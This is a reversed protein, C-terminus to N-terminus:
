PLEDADHDANQIAQGERSKLKRTKNKRHKSKRRRKSPALRGGLAAATSAISASRTLSVIGGALGAFLALYFPREIVAGDTVKLSIDFNKIVIAGNQVSSNINEQLNSGTVSGSIHYAGTETIKIIRNDTYDHEDYYGDDYGTERWFETDYWGIPQKEANSFEVEFEVWKDKPLKEGLSTRFKLLAPADEIYINGIESIQGPVFIFKKDLLTTENSTKSLATGIVLSGFGTAILVIGTRKWRKINMMSDSAGIGAVIERNSIKLNRFFEIEQPKGKADVQAEVSNSVKRGKTQDDSKDLSVKSRYEWTKKQEKPSPRYSFEGAAFQLKWDGFEIRKDNNDPIAPQEPIFKYSWYRTKGYDSLWALQRQENLMWWVTYRSKNTEWVSDESDWERLTGNYHQVGIAQWREDRFTFYSGLTFKSQFDLNVPWRMSEGGAIKAPLEANQGCYHCIVVETEAAQKSLSGGCNACTLAIGSSSAIMEPAAQSKNLRQQVEVLQTALQPRQEILRPLAQRVEDDRGSAVHREIVDLLKDEHLKELSQNLQM